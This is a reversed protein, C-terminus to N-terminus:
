GFYVNNPVVIDRILRIADLINSKGGGNPGYMSAIKLLNNNNIKIIHNPFESVRDIDADMSILLENNISRFNKILLEKIM